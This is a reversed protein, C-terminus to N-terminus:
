SDSSDSPRLAALRQPLRRLSEPLVRGLEDVLAPVPELVGARATAELQGCLEAVGSLGFSLASGRLAHAAAAVAPADDAGRARQLEVLRQDAGDQLTAVLDDLLGRTGDPDLGVLTLIREDDLLGTPVRDAVDPAAASPSVPLSEGTWRHLGDILDEERIPKPLVADMGAAFCREVEERM